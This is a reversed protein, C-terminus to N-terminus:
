AIDEPGVMDRADEELYRLEDSGYLTRRGHLGGTRLPTPEQEGVLIRRPVLGEEVAVAASHTCVGRRAFGECECSCKGDVVEVMYGTGPETHSEVAWFGECLKFAVPGLEGARRVAMRIDREQAAM